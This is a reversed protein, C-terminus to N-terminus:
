IGIPYGPTNLGWGGCWGAHPDAGPPEWSLNVRLCVRLPWETDGRHLFANGHRALLASM